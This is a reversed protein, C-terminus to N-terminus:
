SGPKWELLERPGRRHVAHRGPERGRGRFHGWVGPVLWLQAAAKPSVAWREDQSPFHLDKEAPMVLTRARISRLAEHTSSFDAM